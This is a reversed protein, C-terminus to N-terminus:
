ANTGKIFSFYLTIVFNRPVEEYIQKHLVFYGPIAKLDNTIVLLDSSDLQLSEQDYRIIFSLMKSYLSLWNISSIYSLVEFGEYKESLSIQKLDVLECMLDNHCFSKIGESNCGKSMERKISFYPQSKILNLCEQSLKTHYIRGKMDLLEKEALEIKGLFCEDDPSLVWDLRERKCGNNLRYNVMSLNFYVKELLQCFEKYKDGGYEMFTSLTNIIDCNVLYANDNQFREELLYNWTKHIMSHEYRLIRKFKILHLFPQFMTKAEQQNYSAKILDLDFAVDLVRVYNHSFFLLIRTKLITRSQPYKDKKQKKQVKKEFITDIDLESKDSDTIYSESDAKISFIDQNVTNEKSFDSKPIQNM